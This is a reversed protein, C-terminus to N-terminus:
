RKDKYEVNAECLRLDLRGLLLAAADPAPMARTEILLHYAPPEGFVPALAFEELALGLDRLAQRVAESVQHATLKEGTLNAIQSGKHLFRLRPARGLFGTCEVVDSIDYRVLGGSTTLLVYYRQGVQLEHAELTRPAEKGYEEEPVFEFYGGEVNLVGDPAGDELPITMRAESASLGHDRLPLEGYHRTLLPLYPSLTGGTWVGLLALGPWVRRPALTGDEKLLRALRASRDEHRRALRRGLSGPLGLGRPDRGRLTGQALDRVLEPGWRELRKAFEILTSPNATTLMMVDDRALGILLAAYHREETEGIEMVEPPVAQTVRLTAQMSQLLFGSISGIPVGSPACLARWSSGLNIVGGYPVRPHDRAVGCGWITWSRRYEALSLPTVPIHKAPATTGSTVAFMLIPVGPRFLATTEGAMAREVYPEVRAFGAPPLAARLAAPTMGPSLGHDRAFRGGEMLSLIERLKAAQVAPTEEVNRLFAQLWRNRHWLVPRAFLTRLLSTM